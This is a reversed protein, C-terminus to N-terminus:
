TVPPFLINLFNMAKVIDNKSIHLVLHTHEIYVKNVGVEKAIAQYDKAFISDSFIEYRPVNPSVFFRDSFYSKKQVDDKPTYERM